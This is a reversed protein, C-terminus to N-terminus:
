KTNLGLLLCECLFVCVSTRRLEAESSLCWTSMWCMSESTRRASSLVQTSSATSCTHYKTLCVHATILRLEQMHVSMPFHSRQNSVTDMWEYMWGILSCYFKCYKHSVYETWLSHTSSQHSGSLNHHSRCFRLSHECIFILLPKGVAETEPLVIQVSCCLNRPQTLGFLCRQDSDFM